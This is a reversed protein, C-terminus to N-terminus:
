APVEQMNNDMHAVDRLEEGHPCSSHNNVTHNLNHRRLTWIL